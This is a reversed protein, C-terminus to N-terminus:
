KYKIGIFATVSKTPSMVFSENLTLGIHRNCDLVGFNEKQIELPLDGYGASFRPSLDAEFKKTIDECFADCLAEIRETGIAQFMVAKLPSIHSYKAILRDTEIGITAAFVIVDDANKLNLALKESSVKFAGFDCVKGDISLPLKIYCVKYTLKNEIEKVCENLVALINDDSVKVGAYRLIEESCFLPEDFSKILVCESM